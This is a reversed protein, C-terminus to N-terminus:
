CTVSITETGSSSCDAGSSASCAWSVDTIEAPIAASVFANVVSDPGANSVPITYTISDGPVANDHSNNIDVSLDASKLNITFVLNNSEGGGSEVNLVTISVKGAASIDTSGIEAQLENSSVFTTPRTEGNWQVKSASYLFHTGTLTITLEPSGATVFQPNISMLTPVPNIEITGMPTLDRGNFGSYDLAYRKARFVVNQYGQFFPPVVAGQDIPGTNTIPSVYDWVLNEEPDLEFFRGIPGDCVLTNGNPLRQASSIFSAFFEDPPDASYEWLPTMPGYATGPTYSYVGQSDVPPTIEVISSYEVDPRGSGNNFILINGAGPLGTEIWHADHQSFLLQDNETGQRYTRPNGWRYLLDGGMGSNGGSDSAAETVTTSHDIVWIESFVRSSLMIQDFDPNYAIANAHIWDAPGRGDGIFNLDVLEPHDAVIGYTEITDSYIDQILHDWVHWEWIIDGSNFGTKQVEVIHEPWLEGEILLDPDRGMEVTETYTKLEWALILVNGNPLVAIDHHQRYLPTSYIYDWVLTGDWSFEQIRGGAGGANFYADRNNGPRMLNGNELLYVSAAPTTESEWSHVQYGQNDVLYTTTYLMPSFLTYGPFSSESNFFLGVTQTFVSLEEPTSRLGAYIRSSYKDAYDNNAENGELQSASAITFILTFLGFSIIGFVILRRIIM